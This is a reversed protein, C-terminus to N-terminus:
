RLHESLETQYQRPKVLKSFIAPVKGMLTNFDLMLFVPNRTKCSFLTTEKSVLAMFDSQYLYIYTLHYSRPM